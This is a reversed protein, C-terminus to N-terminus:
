RAPSEPPPRDATSLSFGLLPPWDAFPYLRVNRLAVDGPPDILLHLHDAKRIAQHVAGATQEDWKWREARARRDLAEIMATAWAQPSLRARAAAVDRYRSLLGGDAFKLELKRLLIQDQTREFNTPTGELQIAGHARGLAPGAAEFQMMALDAQAVYQIRFALDFELKEYGLDYLSPLPHRTPDAGVPAPARVAAVPIQAGILRGDLHEILGDHGQRVSDIRLERVQIRLGPPTQLSIRLMGEPQFSVGWARGAGWPFPWLKEYRLEGHPVLRATLRAVEEHARQVLRYQAFGAAVALVLGFRWAFAPLKM